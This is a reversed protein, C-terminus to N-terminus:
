IQFEVICSQVRTYDHLQPANENNLNHVCFNDYFHKGM